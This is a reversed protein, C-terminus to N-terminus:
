KYGHNGAIREKEASNYFDLLEGTHQRMQLEHHIKQVWKKLEKRRRRMEDFDYEEITWDLVVGKKKLLQVLQVPNAAIVPLGADLYDFYKNTHAYRIVEEGYRADLAQNYIMGQELHIRKMPYVGYDHKSLEYKLQEFPIPRHLHFYDNEQDMEIYASLRKENWLHPYLHFHCQHAACMAALDSFNQMWEMSEAASLVNGCYCVSLESSEPETTCVQENSCYDSFQIFKGEIRYGNQILCNMEFGRNCIADAHELCFRENDLLEGSIGTYCLNYIDYEDYVVLPFLKKITIVIRDIKSNGLTTFLHVIQAREAIIRYVFEVVSTCRICALHMKQLAPICFEQMAALPSAILRIEYGQEQLAEAIKLSRPTLAGIAFVIKHECRKGNIDDKLMTLAKQKDTCHDHNECWEAIENLWEQESMKEYRDYVHVREFDLICLYHRIQFKQVTELIEKEYRGSVGILVLVDNKNIYEAKDEFDYVPIKNLFLNQMDAKKTIICFETQKGCELIAQHTKEAVAGCGYIAIKDYRYLKEKLVSILIDM